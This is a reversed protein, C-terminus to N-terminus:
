KKKTKHSVAKTAAKGSSKSSRASQKAAAKVPARHVARGGSHLSAREIRAGGTSTSIREPGPEAPVSRGVPVHLVMTQGPMVMDRRTRNWARLQGVSV